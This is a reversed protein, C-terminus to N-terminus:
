QVGLLDLLAAVSVRLQRGVRIVPVPFEGRRALGYASTREIGVVGAANAETPSWLPVTAEDHALLDAISTPRTHETATSDAVTTAHERNVSLV